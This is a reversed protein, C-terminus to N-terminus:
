YPVLQHEWRAVSARDGVDSRGSAVVNGHTNQGSAFREDTLDVNETLSIKQGHRM